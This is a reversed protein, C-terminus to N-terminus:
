ESVLELRSRPRRRPDRPDREDEGRVRRLGDVGAEPAGLDARAGRQRRRPRAGVTVDPNAVINQLWAPDTPAGGKSAFIAVSGPSLRQYALPNIYDKGSKAGKHHLLLLDRGEFYGGVRGENARFEDIIRENDTAM